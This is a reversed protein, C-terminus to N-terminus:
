IIYIYIIIVEAQPFGQVHVQAQNDTDEKHKVNRQVRRWESAELIELYRQVSLSIM